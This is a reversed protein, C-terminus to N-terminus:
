FISYIFSFLYNFNGISFFHSGMYVYYGVWVSLDGVVKLFLTRGFGYSKKIFVFNKKLPTTKCVVKIFCVYIIVCCLM